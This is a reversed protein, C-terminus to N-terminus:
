ASPVTLNGGVLAQPREVALALRREARVTFRNYIFDNENEAAVDVVTEMRDYVTAARAFDGVLYKGQPMAATAVVRCGWVRADALSVNPSGLLYAGGTEKLGQILSWDAPNLVIANAVYGAAGVQGISARILDLLTAGSGGLQALTFSQATYNGTAMLGSLNPATGNGSVIQSEAKVNVGYAMRENIFAALAPADDVLQRTVKAYHAIVQVPLQVLETAVISQPKAGNEAVGAANNTFATERLFEVNGTSVPIHPIIAELTLPANGSEVVGSARYYPAKNGITIENAKTVVTATRTSKGQMAKYAASKVVYDGLSEYKEATTDMEREGKQQLEFIQKELLANKETLESVAQAQADATKQMESLKSDIATVAEIAKDMEM